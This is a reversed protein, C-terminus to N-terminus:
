RTSRQLDIALLSVDGACTPCPPTGHSRGAEKGGWVLVASRGLGPRAADRTRAARHASVLSSSTLGQPRRIKLSWGNDRGTADAAVVGSPVRLEASTAEYRDRGMCGWSVVNPAPNPASDPGIIAGETWEGEEFNGPGVPGAPPDIGLALREHSGRVRVKEPTELLRRLDRRRGVEVTGPANAAM